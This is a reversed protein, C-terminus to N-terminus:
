LWYSWCCGCGWRGAWTCARTSRALTWSRREGRPNLIEVPCRLMEIMEWLAAQAQWSFNLLYMAETVVPWVTVMQEELSKLTKVCRDHNQDDAHLLAVLPGTDVLIM